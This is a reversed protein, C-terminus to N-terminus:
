LTEVQSMEEISKKLNKLSQDVVQQPDMGTLTEIAKEILTGFAVHKIHIAVVTSDGSKKFDLTMENELASEGISKCVIKKYPTGSLTSDWEVSLGLVDGVKWHLKKKGEPTIKAFSELVGALNEPEMCFNYITEQDSNITISKTIEEFEQM